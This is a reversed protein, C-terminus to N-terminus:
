LKWNMDSKWGGDAIGATSRTSKPKHGQGKLIDLHWCLLYSPRLDNVEFKNILYM